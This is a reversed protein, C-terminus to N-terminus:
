SKSVRLRGIHHYYTKCSGIFCKIHNGYDKPHKFIGKSHSQFFDSFCGGQFFFNGPSFIFNQINSLFSMKVQKLFNSANKSLVLLFTTKSCYEFNLKEVLIYFITLRNQPLPFCAKFDRRSLYGTMIDIFLFGGRCKTSRM